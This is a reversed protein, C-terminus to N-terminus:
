GDEDGNFTNKFKMSLEGMSKVIAIPKTEQNSTINKSSSSENLDLNWKIQKPLCSKM